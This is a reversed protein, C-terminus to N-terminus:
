RAAGRRLVLAAGMIFGIVVALILSKRV